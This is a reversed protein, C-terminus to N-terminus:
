LYYSQKKKNRTKRKFDFKKQGSLEHSLGFVKLKTKKKNTPFHNIRVQDNKLEFHLLNGRWRMRCFIKRWNSPLRPNVTLIDKKIKIRAFGNMLAQWTAGICAAHMGDATNKHVNSIDVHVSSSFYRYARGKDGIDVAALAYAPLSLSSKHLTRAIYYEYNNKKTKLNFVDSLLNLLMVVDAQKILQTKEYERPTLKEKLIPLNNEDLNDLKIYRKKFYGNFQEIVQKKNMKIVIGSAVKKWERAERNSLNIKEAIKKVRNFDDKRARRYMKSALILNWKAMMNTFANNNVDKHFEDPGIVNKIEYTKKGKNCEVRSAWFRATEFFLEYGYEALFKEDATINYYYYFAYAIDATIHHEKQGTYIKIVRGDLDKARDPTEDAGSSASEWPFMAGRYGNEKALQRAADLRQFRYLLMNKAVEPFTYLYFPFLFIETDWFIHGRYGEGTLAKAGISSFGNDKPACILMHYINFRFNKEVDPDGWISVEAISWLNEWAKIHKKLLSSFSATFAKRFSKESGAKFIKLDNNKPTVGVYFVKTFVITQNKNLKLEFVNDKAYVKKGKTEYYFGSRLIVSHSRNFTDVVLFGENKFQGLEKVRFHKKRGETVTGANYVSTDIGTEITITVAQDLPTFIVQMVGINKDVMSVFRLSQYDYRKKDTDELITHRSLLGHRINLTRRHKFVDMAIVGVKEGGTTIKFNFPNPLNVLEAVQSGVTDYLGAIYTGPRADYPMEELVARSGLFGNGLAFQTERVGQLKRVWGEENISWCYDSNYKFYYDKMALISRQNGSL